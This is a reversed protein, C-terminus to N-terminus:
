DQPQWGFPKYAYIDGTDGDFNGLFIDFRRAYKWKGLIGAFGAPERYPPSFGTPNPAPARTLTWGSAGFVHPPTLYWVDAGTCWIAFASRVSDFDMGCVQLADTPFEGSLGAVSFRVSKNGPGAKSMDWAIFRTNTAPGISRVFIRRGPDYAGAGKGTYADDKIGVLEWSDQDPDSIDSIVYRFLRGSQDPHSTIYIADKGDHKAYASTTNVFNRDPRVAGIGRVVMTNRNEWMEGGFVTSHIMPNVHSGRTGGVMMPNARSPDWLYPGTRTTGDLLVFRQQANYKAGGFTIFRDVVPLFEQNDYTHSSTPANLPGDVAVFQRDGLPDYIASPLSAREWELTSLRFRYVENGCYNAHGGGWFLLDGRNTDFAMSGWATLVKSPKNYGGCPRQNLPTWVSSFLNKNLKIWSGEPAATLLRKLETFSGSGIVDVIVTGFAAVGGTDVITYSFSDKGSFGAPATYIISNGPGTAVAGHLPAAVGQLLIAEGDPDSDNELPRVMFSRGAVASVSDARAIPPDSQPTVTITVTGHSKGYKDDAIRYNFTDTGHFDPRPTYLLMGGSQQVVTGHAAVGISVVRIPDGDPDWDNALVDILAGSDELITAIDATAVPARNDPYRPFFTGAEFHGDAFTVIEINTLQDSGDRRLATDAVMIQSGWSIRYEESEGLYVATDRGPGGNLIDNGRGGLITDDDTSGVITDNGTGGQILEIGRVTIDSLNLSRSGGDALRIIDYGSRGDILEISTPQNRLGIIDNGDSGIISDFGDGGHIDDYSLSTGYVQFTDNGRGGYLADTGTGGIIVDNGDNGHITDNGSGGDLRDASSSGFIQDSGGMGYILHPESSASVDIVDSGSTGNITIAALAPLSLVSALFAATGRLSSNKSTM